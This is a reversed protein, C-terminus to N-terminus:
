NELVWPSALLLVHQKKYSKVPKFYNNSNFSLGFGYYRGTTKTTSFGMLNYHTHDATGGQLKIETYPIGRFNYELMYAYRTRVHIGATHMFYPKYQLLTDSVQTTDTKTSTQGHAFDFM